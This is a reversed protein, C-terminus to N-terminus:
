TQPATLIEINRALKKMRHGFKQRQKDTLEADLAIIMRMMLLRNEDVLMRYEDRDNHNPAMMLRAMRQSFEPEPPREVVLSRFEQQWQRRSAMWELSVDHLGDQYSRVLDKQERSLRGLLREMARITSEYRKERREEATQGAYDEWLEQNSEELNEIFEDIQDASLLVFFESIDPTTQMIFEDWLEIMRAYHREIMALTIAGTAVDRDIERVLRAYQPLQDRRHWDVNKQVLLELREEQEDELTFFDSVYWVILWDLQNYVLRTASCGALLLVCLCLALRGSARSAAGRPRDLQQTPALAM